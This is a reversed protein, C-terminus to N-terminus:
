IDEKKRKGPPPPCKYVMKMVVVREGWPLKDVVM